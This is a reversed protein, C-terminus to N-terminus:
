QVADANLVFALCGALNEPYPKRMGQSLSWELLILRQEVTTVDADGATPRDSHHSLVSRAQASEATQGSM